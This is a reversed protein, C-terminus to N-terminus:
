CVVTQKGVIARGQRGRRSFLDANAFLLGNALLLVPLGCVNKQSTMINDKCILAELLSIMHCM